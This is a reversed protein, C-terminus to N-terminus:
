ESRPKTLNIDASDLTDSEPKEEFVREEQSTVESIREKAEDTANKYIKRDDRKDQTNM